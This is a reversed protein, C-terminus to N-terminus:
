GPRRISLTASGDSEERAEWELGRKELQGFLMRPYRPTRAVLSDGPGLAAVAELIRRLPEPAELDRLDLEVRRRGPEGAIRPVM